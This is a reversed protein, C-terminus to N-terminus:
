TQPGVDHGIDDLCDETRTDEEEVGDQNVGELVDEHFELIDRIREKVM